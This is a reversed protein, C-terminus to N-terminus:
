ILKRQARTTFPMSPAVVGDGVAVGVSLGVSLGVNLGVTDGVADGVATGVGLPPIVARYVGLSVRRSDFVRRGQHAIRVAQTRVSIAALLTYEVRVVLRQVPIWAAHQAKRSTPRFRAATAIRQVGITVSVM